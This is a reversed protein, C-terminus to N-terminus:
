VRRLFGSTRLRQARRRLLAREALRGSRSDRKRDGDPGGFRAHSIRRM